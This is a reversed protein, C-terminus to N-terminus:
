SWLRGFHGCTVVEGTMVEFGVVAGTVVVGDVPVAVVFGDVPVPLPPEVPEDPVPVVVGPVPPEEVPVPVPFPEPDFVPEVPVPVPEPVVPPELLEEGDDPEEVTVLEGLVPPDVPLPEVPV